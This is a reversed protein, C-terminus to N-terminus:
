EIGHRRIKPDHHLEARAVHARPDLEAEEIPLLTEVLRVLTDNPYDAGYLEVLANAIPLRLDGSLVGAGILRSAARALAAQLRSTTRYAFGDGRLLGDAELIALAEPSARPSAAEHPGPLRAPGIDGASRM